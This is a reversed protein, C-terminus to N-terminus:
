DSTSDPEYHEAAKILAIQLLVLARRATELASQGHVTEATATGIIESAACLRDHVHNDSLPKEDAM